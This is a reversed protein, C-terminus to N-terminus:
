KDVVTSKEAKNKCFWFCGWLLVLCYTAWACRSTFTGKLSRSDASAGHQLVPCNELRTQIISKEEIKLKFFLVFCFGVFSAFEFGIYYYCFLSWHAKYYVGLIFYGLEEICPDFSM